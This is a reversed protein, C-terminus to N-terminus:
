DDRVELSAGCNTLKEVFNEYGREIHYIRDIVTEGEAQLGALVLAMGARLDSSMVTAGSYQKIGNIVAKNGNITINASLRNLEPVHMFRNEYITEDISSEGNVVGLLAMMSAQCDTPFGPYFDTTIHVPKLEKDIFVRIKDNGLKEIGVGMEILTNVPKELVSFFDLGELIVDGGTIATAVM